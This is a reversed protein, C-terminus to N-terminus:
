SYSWTQIGGDGGRIVAKGALMSGLKDGLTGLFMALFRAVNKIIEGVSKILLGSEELSKAIKMIDKM